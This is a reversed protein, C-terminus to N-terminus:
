RKIFERFFLLGIVAPIAEVIITKYDNVWVKPEDPIFDITTEKDDGPLKAHPALVNNSNEM